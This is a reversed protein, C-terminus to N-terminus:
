PQEQEVWSDLLRHYGQKIDALRGIDVGPLTLKNELGHHIFAVSCSSHDKYTTYCSALWASRPDTTDSPPATFVHWFMPYAAKSGVRFGGTQPDDTVIRQRYLNDGHWAHYADMGVGYKQLFDGPQTLFVMLWRNGQILEPELGLDAYPIKLTIGEGPDMGTRPIMSAPLEPPLYRSPVRLVTENIHHTSLDESHAELGLLLVTILLIRVASVISNM